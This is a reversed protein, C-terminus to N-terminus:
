TQSPFAITKLKEFIANSVEPVHLHYISQLYDYADNEGYDQYIQKYKEVFPEILTDIKIGHKQAIDLVKNAMEASRGDFAVELPTKEHEKEHATLYYPNENLWTFFPEDTRVSEEKKEEKNRAVFFSDRWKKYLFPSIEQLDAEFEKRAFSNKEGSYIDHLSTEYRNKLHIIFDRAPVYSDQSQKWLKKAQELSKERTLKPNKKRANFATKLEDEFSSRGNAQHEHPLFTEVIPQKIEVPHDIPTKVKKKPTRREELETKQARRSEKSRSHPDYSFMDGEPPAILLTSYLLAYAYFTYKM